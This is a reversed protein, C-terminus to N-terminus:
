KPWLNGSFHQSKPIMKFSKALGVNHAIRVIKGEAHIFFGVNRPIRGPSLLIFISGCISFFNWSSDLHQKLRQFTFINSANIQINLKSFTTSYREPQIRNDFKPGISFPCLQFYDSAFWPYINCLNFAVYIM